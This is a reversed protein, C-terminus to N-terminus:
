RRSARANSTTNHPNMAHCLTSMCVPIAAASLAHARSRTELIRATDGDQTELIDTVDRDLAHYAVRVSDAPSLHYVTPDAM